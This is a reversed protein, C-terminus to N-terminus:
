LLATVASELTLKNAALCPDPEAGGAAMLRDYLPLALEAFGVLIELALPAANMDRAIALARRLSRRGAELEGLRVQALGLNNLAYIASWQNNIEEAIELCSLAYEKAAAYDGTLLAM